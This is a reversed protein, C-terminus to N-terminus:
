MMEEGLMEDWCAPHTGTVILERKDATLNPFADQIHRGKQWAILRDEEVDMVSSKNCLPCRPTVYRM